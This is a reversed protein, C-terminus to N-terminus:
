FPIDMNMSKEWAKGFYTHVHANAFEPMDYIAALESGDLSYEPEDLWSENELARDWRADNEAWVHADHLNLLGHSAYFADLDAFRQEQTLM